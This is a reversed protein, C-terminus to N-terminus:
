DTGSDEVHVTESNGVLEEIDGEKMGVHQECEAAIRSIVLADVEALDSVEASAFLRNGKDDVVCLAVLRRTADILRSRSIGRGTKSLIQTEYESKEKETLSQIRVRLELEPIEVYTYRRKKFKIIDGKGATKM